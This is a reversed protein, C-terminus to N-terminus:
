KGDVETSIFYNLYLIIVNTQITSQELTAVEQEDSRLLNENQDIEFALQALKARKERM